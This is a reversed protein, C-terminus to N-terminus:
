LLVLQTWGRSTPGYPEVRIKGAEFLRRMDTVNAARPRGARQLVQNARELSAQDVDCLHSVNVDSQRAFEGTLARGRGGVGIMGVNVKDNAAVARMRSFAVGAAATGLFYRRNM